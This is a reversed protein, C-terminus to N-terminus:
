FIVYQQGEFKQHIKLSFSVDIRLKTRKRVLFFSAIYMLYKKKTEINLQRKSTLNEVKKGGLYNTKTEIFQIPM